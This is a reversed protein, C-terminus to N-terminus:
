RRAFHSEKDRDKQGRIKRPNNRESKAEEYRKSQRPNRFEKTKEVRKPARYVTRKEVRKEKVVKQTVVRKRDYDRPHNREARRM